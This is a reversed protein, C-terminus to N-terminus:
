IGFQLKWVVFEVGSPELFCFAHLEVTEQGLIVGCQMAAVDQRVNNLGFRGGGLGEVGVGWVGVRFQLCVIKPQMGQVQPTETPGALSVHVPAGVHPNKGVHGGVTFHRM